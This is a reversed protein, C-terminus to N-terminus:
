IKIFIIRPSCCVRKDHVHHRPYDDPAASICTFAETIESFDQWVAWARKKSINYFASTSDCGTIAHFLSRKAKRFGLNRYKKSFAFVRLALGTWGTGCLNGYDWRRRSWRRGRVHFSCTNERFTSESKVGFCFLLTDVKRSFM